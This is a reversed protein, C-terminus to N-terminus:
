PTARLLNLAKIEDATGQSANFGIHTEHPLTAKILETPIELNEAAGFFNGIIRTGANVAVVNVAVGANKVFGNGFIFVGFTPKDPDGPQIRIAGAKNNRFFCGSILLDAVTGLIKAGNITIDAAVDVGWEPADTIITDRIRWHDCKRVLQLNVKNALLQCSDIDVFPTNTGGQIGYAGFGSVRVRHLRFRQPPQPEDDAVSQSSGLKIGGMNKANLGPGEIALDRINGSGSMADVFSVAPGAFDGSFKLRGAGNIGVGALTYRVPIRIAFSLPVEEDIILTGGWHKGKPGQQTVMDLFSKLCNKGGVERLFVFRPNTITNSEPFPECDGPARPEGGATLNLERPHEPRPDLAALTANYENCEDVTWVRALTFQSM